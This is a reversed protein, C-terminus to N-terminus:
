KDVLVACATGYTRSVPLVVRDYEEIWENLAKWEGEQWNHYVKRVAHEHMVASPNKILRFDSLEDFVIITGRVIRSNLADFVTKTSSYLDCDIHLMSINPHNFQKWAKATKDYWGRILTVNDPVEPLKGGVNFKNKGITIHKNFKWSEPLGEFSDFGYFQVDPAHKAMVNMSLGEFVGFELVPGSLIRADLMDKLQQWVPERPDGEYEYTKINMFDKIDLM